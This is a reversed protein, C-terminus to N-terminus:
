MELSYPQPNSPKVYNVLNDYDSEGIGFEDMLKRMATEIHSDKYDFQQYTYKDYIKLSGFVDWLFRGFTLGAYKYRKLGEKLGPLKDEMGKRMALYHEDLMKMELLKVLSKATLKSSYRMDVSEELKIGNDTFFEKLEDATMTVLRSRIVAVIMKQMLPLDNENNEGDILYDKFFTKIDKIGMNGIISKAGAMAKNRLIKVEDKAKPKVEEATKPEEVPPKAEDEVPKKEEKARHPNKWGDLVDEITEDKILADNKIVFELYKKVDEPIAKDDLKDSLKVKFMNLLERWNDITPNSVKFLNYTVPVMFKNSRTYIQNSAGEIFKMFDNDRGTKKDNAFNKIYVGDPMKLGLMMKEVAERADAAEDGELIRLYRKDFATTKM